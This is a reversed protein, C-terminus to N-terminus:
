AAAAHRHDKAPALRAERGAEIWRSACVQAARMGVQDVDAFITLSEIGRLVPFREIGGASTACWLPSWGSLLVALGDEIGETVGLGLTVEGRSLRIVGQHGLMRRSIKTADKALFTRYIGTPAGTIPDTMLAVIMDERNHWRVAHDLELSGIHLGRVETFYRLGLTDKLPVAERWIRLTLDIRCQADDPGSPSPRAVSSMDRVVGRGASAVARRGGDLAPETLLQQRQLEGKVEQWSCGAFCHVDIGDLKAADDRVKLSPERDDHTPCRALGYSGCWRGGLAKTLGRAASM